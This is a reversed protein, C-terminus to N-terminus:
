FISRISLNLDSLLLPNLIDIIDIKDTQVVHMAFGNYLKWIINFINAYSILMNSFLDYRSCM